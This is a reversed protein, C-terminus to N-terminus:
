PAGDRLWEARYRRALELSAQARNLSALCAEVATLVCVWRLVDDASIGSAAAVATARQPAQTVPTHTVAWQAADYAPHGACPNPDIALLRSRPIGSTRARCTEMAFSRHGRIRRPLVSPPAGHEDSRRQPCCGM